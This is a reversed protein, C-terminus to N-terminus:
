NAGLDICVIESSGRIYLRTGVLAPHSYVGHDDSFVQSRGLLRFRDALADVLMLEGNLGIVLLRDDSAILSAYSAFVADEGRWAPALKKSLDLCFLENWVGFVRNGVVVPTHTDPALQENVALPIPEIGGDKRFAYLRTGGNESAVLLRDGVAIPTPVGFEKSAGPDLRWIRKGTEVDWGGLSEADHGIIQLRGGFKGALFSGYSAAAGPTKWVTRGTKADLAVISAEKAGPNVILKGEVILPSACMGWPLEADPMFEARLDLEWVAEGTSRKVCQIQGFAGALYVLEGDILPTARPSNGFDLHGSAPVIVRWRDAGTNADLCRFADARDHLERDSVIVLERTAAVGGLGKERLSKRWIIAPNAPLSAPLFPVRGDRSRGRWGTWEAIPPRPSDGRVKAAAAGAEPISTAALTGTTLKKKSHRRDIRGDDRGRIWGENRSSQV